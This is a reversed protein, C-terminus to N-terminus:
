YNNALNCEWVVAGRGRQCRSRVVVTSPEGLNSHINRYTGENRRLRSVTKSLYEFGTYSLLACAARM